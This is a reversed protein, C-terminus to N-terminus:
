ILNKAKEKIRVNLIEHNLSYDVPCDIVHVGAESQICQDLIESFDDASEPRYGKAGYSEAYKVFDPNNYSLGFDDFGMDEQKWKIMGYASDNLIIVVVNLGLRVATELEQSNMMFGGDGCVAIVKKEPNLLKAAMASPLGAGMTALANDLLLTNQGYAKYNRAFWIKYVGNDLTLIGDDPLMKRVENVIRQPLIPFRKDEFYKTIHLAVEEKVKSYFSFDWHSQPVIKETLMTISSAIDGIVEHNPFYVQDIRASFFNIHIVKKGGHEMFFPPKEIVDHGVNIILDSADIAYHLYDDSSLAATGLFLEHNENVVGKGMQTNFFPIKTKDIFNALAESTRQRNAGAGILLLPMKADQIKDIAQEIAVLHPGSNKNEHIEFVPEDTEEQAIDEPLELHVTGPREESALRFAERVLSPINNGNIIQKTSKTLSQFMDVVDVIQFQGQK